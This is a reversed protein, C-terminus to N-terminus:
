STHLHSSAPLYLSSARRDFPVLSTRRLLRLAVRPMAKVADQFQVTQAGRLSLGHPNTMGYSSSEDTIRERGGETSRSDVAPEHEGRDHEVGAV